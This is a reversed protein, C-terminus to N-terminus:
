MYMYFLDLQGESDTNSWANQDFTSTFQFWHQKLTDKRRDNFNDCHRMEDTLGFAVTFSLKAFLSRM